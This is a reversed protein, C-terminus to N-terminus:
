IFISVIIMSCILIIISLASFQLLSDILVKYNNYLKQMSDFSAISYLPLVLLIIIVVILFCIYIVAEKKKNTEM